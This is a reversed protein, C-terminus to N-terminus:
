GELVVCIITTSSLPTSTISYIRSWQYDSQILDRHEGDFLTFEGVMTM